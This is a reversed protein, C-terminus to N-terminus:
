LCAKQFRSNTSDAQLLQHSQNNVKKSKALSRLVMQVLVKKLHHRTQLLKMLKRELHFVLLLVLPLEQPLCDEHLLQHVLDSLFLQLQVLLFWALTIGSDESMNLNGDTVGQITCVLM